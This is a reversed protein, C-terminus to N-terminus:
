PAASCRPRRRCGRPTAAAAAPEAKEKVEELAKKPDKLKKFVRKALERFKIKKMKSKLKKGLGAGGMPVGGHDVWFEMESMPHAALYTELTNPAGYDDPGSGKLKSAGKAVQLLDTAAQRMTKLTKEIDRVLHAYQKRTLTFSM